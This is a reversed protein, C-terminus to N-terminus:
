IFKRGTTTHSKAGRLRLRETRESDLRLLGGVADIEPETVFQGDSGITTRAYPAAWQLALLAGVALVQNTPQDDHPRVVIQLQDNM